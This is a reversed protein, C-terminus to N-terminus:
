ELCKQCAQATFDCIDICDLCADICNQSGTRCEEIVTQCIDTCEHAMDVCDQMTEMCKKDNCQSMHSSIEKIVEQCSVICETAKKAVVGRQEACETIDLSSCKDVLIQCADICEENATICGTFGNIIENPIHNM